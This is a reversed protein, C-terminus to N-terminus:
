KNYVAAIHYGGYATAIPITPFLLPEIEKKTQLEFNFFLAEVMSHRNEIKGGGHYFHEATQMNFEGWMKRIMENDRYQNHHWTSLIFHAKTHKLAYFLNIEDQETWGNYYDVYRGFYPPDCYILDGNDAKEITELFSVNNFEWHKSRIIKQVADIQNCIKTIYAPAFRESKKCFPVNFEGKGNFRMLGNFCARSLFIFDYPSGENNFRSRIEKYHVYGDDEAKMLIDGENQLYARMKYSDIDRNQIAQYFRIIHPNTDGVIFNGKLPSNFGVVGTGFFPEIWNARLSLGSQLILDNIWPVLKTKIGQSKIPPVIIM